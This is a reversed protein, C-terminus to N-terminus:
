KKAFANIRNALDAAEEESFSGSIQAKGGTIPSQITPASTLHGDIIIALQKHLNEKTIMAFQEAGKKTFTIEVIPKGLSDKGVTASQLSTQDMLVEKEVFVVLTNSRNNWNSALSMPQVNTSQGEAVLRMQFIPASELDVAMGAVTVLCAALLTVLMKM